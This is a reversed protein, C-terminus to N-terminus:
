AEDMAYLAQYRDTTLQPGPLCIVALLLLTVTLGTVLACTTQLMAGLLTIVGLGVLSFTLAAQSPRTPGQTGGLRHWAFSAWGSMQFFVALGSVLCDCEM